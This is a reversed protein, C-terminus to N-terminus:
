EPSPLELNKPSGDISSSYQGLVKRRFCILLLLSSLILVVPFMALGIDNRFKVSILVSLSLLTALVGYLLTVRRHTLGSSVLRQFLHERHALFINEGRVLRRLVTVMADFLVFWVFLVAAIPLLDPSHSVHERSLLPLAAFTFGLFASGVDGMFINSPRWNHLLFGMSAAAIIGAYLYLSPDQQILGVLLWGIGAIVAQLGALGDIGDMFNYANVMWVVWVFTLVYGLSGLNLKGLMTIGHWTELDAILVIAAASQIILRWFFPIPRIDDLFSILAICLAGGFYGWSVSGSAFLSIPIYALLSLIVIVLGAGHPTPHTHSSRENPIDLLQNSIGFRRFLAVGLYAMGLVAAFIALGM